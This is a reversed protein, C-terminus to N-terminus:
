LTCLATVGFMRQDHSMFHNEIRSVVATKLRHRFRRFGDEPSFSEVDYGISAVRVSLLCRVTFRSAHHRMNRRRADNVRPTASRKERAPVELVPCRAVSILTWVPMLQLAFCDIAFLFVGDIHCRGTVATATSLIM